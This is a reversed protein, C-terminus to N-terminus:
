SRSDREGHCRAHCLTKFNLPEAGAAGIDINNGGTTLNSGATAGLAVNNSGTKNNILANVGVAM